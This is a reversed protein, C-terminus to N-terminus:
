AVPLVLPMTEVASKAESAFISSTCTGYLPSGCAIVSMSAPRTCSMNQEELVDRVCIRSPRRRASTVVSALRLGSSGSAGVIASAPM